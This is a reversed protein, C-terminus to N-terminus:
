DQAAWNNFRQNLEEVNDVWFERGFFLGHPLNEPATPTQPLVAPDVAAAAVKTTPGYPIHQPLLKQNEPATMFALLNM